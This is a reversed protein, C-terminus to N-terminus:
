REQTFVFHRGDMKILKRLSEELVKEFLKIVHELLRVGRYKVSELADGKGKYIPVTVNNKWEKPNEGEDVIGSFVGTLEGTINARKMLNSTMGTSGPAKGSKMEKLARKVEEESVEEAPGESM